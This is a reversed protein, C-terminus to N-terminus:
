QQLAIYLGAASPLVALLTSFLRNARSLGVIVQDSQKIEPDPFNGTRIDALSFRAAYRQGDIQRVIVVDDLKADRGAGDGLAVAQSLTIRGPIQYVGPKQVEGDVTFTYNIPKVIAVSVQADRLYRSNLRATIERQVEQTTHGAADVFGILPLAFQGSLDIAQEEVSLDPENFVKVALTDLPGLLYGGPVGAGISPSRTDSFAQGAPALEATRSGCGALGIAGILCLSLRV